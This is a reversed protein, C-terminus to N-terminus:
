PPDPRPDTKKPAAAKTAVVLDRVISRDVRHEFSTDDPGVVRLDADGLLGVVDDRAITRRNFALCLAGGGRLVSRWVPLADALLGGANRSSGWQETRSGHQIGYPVDGVIVDISSRKLHERAGLTDDHIIDVLQDTAEGMATRKITILTEHGTTPRGKRFTWSQVRHKIRKDKLWTELFQAYADTDRQEVEIGAVDFGLMLGQNLTTGRGALPDLLRVREGALRRETASDSAAVALNVLLKTFQENTKGSYRLTTLLDDDYCAVPREEVPVLAGDRVEFVVYVSSLELLAALDDPTLPEDVDLEVFPAGGRDVRRTERVIGGLTMSDLFALEAALIQPAQRTYVRNFSPEVLLAYTTTM